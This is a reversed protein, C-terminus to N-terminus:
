EDSRLKRLPKLNKKYKRVYYLLLVGFFIIAVTSPFTWGTKLEFLFISFIVVVFGSMVLKCLELKAKIYETETM